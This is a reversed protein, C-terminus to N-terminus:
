EKNEQAANWISRYFELEDEGIVEKAYEFTPLPAKAVIFSQLNFMNTCVWEEFTLKKKPSEEEQVKKVYDGITKIDNVIQGAPTNTDYRPHKRIM